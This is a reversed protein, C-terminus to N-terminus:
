ASTRRGQGGGTFKSACSVAKPSAQGGAGQATLAGAVELATYMIGSSLHREWKQGKVKGLEIDVQHAIVGNGKGPGSSAAGPLLIATAVATTALAALAPWRVPVKM